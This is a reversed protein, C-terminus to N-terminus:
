SERGAPLPKDDFPALAADTEAINEELLCLNIGAGIWEGTDDTWCLLHRMWGLSNDLAKVLAEIHAVLEQVDRTSECLAVAFTSPGIPRGAKSALLDRHKENRTKIDSLNM